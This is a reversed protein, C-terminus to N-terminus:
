KGHARIMEDIDKMDEGRNDKIWAGRSFHPGFFEDFTDPVKPLPYWAKYTYLLVEDTFSKGKKQRIEWLINNWNRGAWDHDCVNRGVFSSRYYCSFLSATTYSFPQGEPNVSNFAKKFLLRFVWLAYVDRIDDPRDIWDAPISIQADYISDLPTTLSMTIANGSHTGLPPVEKPTDFGVFTLYQDFAEMEDAIREKRVATFLLSNKFILKLHRPFQPPRPLLGTTEKAQNSDNKTPQPPQSHNSPRIREAIADPLGRIASEIHFLVTLLDPQQNTPALRWYGSLAGVVIFLSVIAKFGRRWSVMLWLAGTLCLAGGLTLGFGLWFNPRPNIVVYLLSGFGLALGLLGLIEGWRKGRPLAAQAAMAKEVLAKITRQLRPVVV